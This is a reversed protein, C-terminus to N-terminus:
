YFKTTKSPTQLIAISPERIVPIWQLISKRGLFTFDPVKKNFFTFMCATLSSDIAELRFLFPLNVM